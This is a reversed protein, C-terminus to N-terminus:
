LCKMYITYLNFFLHNKCDSIYLRQYNRYLWCLSYSKFINCSFLRLNKKKNIYIRLKSCLLSSICSVYHLTLFIYIHIYKYQAYKSLKKKSLFHM